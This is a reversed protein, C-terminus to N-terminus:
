GQAYPQSVGGNLIGDAFLNLTAMQQVQLTDSVPTEAWAVSVTTSFAFM